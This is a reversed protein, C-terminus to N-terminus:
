LMSLSSTGSIQLVLYHVSKKVCLLWAIFKIPRLYKSIKSVAKLRKLVTAKTGNIPLDRARCAKKLEALKMDKLLKGDIIIDDESSM